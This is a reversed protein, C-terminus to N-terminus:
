PATDPMVKMPYTREFGGVYTGNLIFHTVTIRRAEIDVNPAPHALVTDPDIGNARLFAMFREREREDRRAQVEPPEVTTPQWDTAAILRRHWMTTTTPSGLRQDEISQYDEDVTFLSMVADAYDQGDFHDDMRETRMKEDIKEAIMDRLEAKPDSAM